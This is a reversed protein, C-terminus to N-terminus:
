LLDTIKVRSNYFQLYLLNVEPPPAKKTSSTSPSIASEDEEETVDDEKNSTEPSSIIKLDKKGLVNNNDKDINSSINAVLQKSCSIRRRKFPQVSEPTSTNTQSVDFIENETKRRKRSIEEQVHDFKLLNEKLVKFIIDLRSQLNTTDILSIVISTKPCSRIFDRIKDKIQFYETVINILGIGADLSKIGQSYALYEQDSLHRSTECFTDYADTLNQEDLYDIKNKM